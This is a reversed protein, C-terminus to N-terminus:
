TVYMQHIDSCQIESPDPNWSGTDFCELTITEDNDICLFQLTSGAHTPIIRKNSMNVAPLDPSGCNM